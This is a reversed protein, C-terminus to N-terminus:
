MFVKPFIQSLRFDLKPKFIFANTPPNLSTTLENSSPEGYVYNGPNKLSGESCSASM